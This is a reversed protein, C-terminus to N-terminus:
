QLATQRFLIYANTVNHINYSLRLESAFSFSVEQTRQMSLLAKVKQLYAKLTKPEIQPLTYYIVTYVRM